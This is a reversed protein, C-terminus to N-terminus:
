SIARFTLPPFETVGAKMVPWNLGWLVTLLALLALDRRSLPM